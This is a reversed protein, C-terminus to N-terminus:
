KKMLALVSGIIGIVFGLLGFLGGGVITLISFVLVVLAGALMYTRKYILIAGVLILAGFFLLTGGLRWVGIGALIKGALKDTVGSIELGRGQLLRVVGQILVLIGAILSLVFGAM